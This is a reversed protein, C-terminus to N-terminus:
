IYIYPRSGLVDVEVKVCSRTFFIKLYGGKHLLAICPFFGGRPQRMRKTFTLQGNKTFYVLLLVPEREDNKKLDTPFIVGCGM